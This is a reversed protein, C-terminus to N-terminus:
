ADMPEFQLPTITEEGWAERTRVRDSITEVGDDIIFAARFYGIRLDLIDQGSFLYRNCM